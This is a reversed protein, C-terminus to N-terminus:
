CQTDAAPQCGACLGGKGFLELLAFYAFALHGDRLALSNVLEDVIRRHGGCGRGCRRRCGRCWNFGLLSDFQRDVVQGVCGKRVIGDVVVPLDHFTLLDVAKGRVTGALISGSLFAGLASSFGIYNAIVVM